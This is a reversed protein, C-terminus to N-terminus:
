CGLRKLSLLMLLSFVGLWFEVSLVNSYDAATLMKSYEKIASRNLVLIAEM